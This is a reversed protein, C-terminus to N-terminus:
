QVALFAVGTRDLAKPLREWAIIGAALM